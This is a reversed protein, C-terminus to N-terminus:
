QFLSVLKKITKLMWKKLGEKRTEKEIQKTNFTYLLRLAKNRLVSEPLIKKNYKSEWCSYTSRCVGFLDATQKQTLKNVLRLERLWKGTNKIM